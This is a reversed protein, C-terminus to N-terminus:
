SRLRRNFTLSHLSATERWVKLAPAYLADIQGAAFDLGDVRFAVPM